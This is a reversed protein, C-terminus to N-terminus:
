IIEGSHEKTIIADLEELLNRNEQLLRTYLDNLPQHTDRFADNVCPSFLIGVYGLYAMTAINANIISDIYLRRFQAMDGKNYSDLAQNKRTYSLHSSAVATELANIAEKNLQPSCEQISHLTGPEHTTLQALAYAPTVAVIMGMSAATILELKPIKM